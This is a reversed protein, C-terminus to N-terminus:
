NLLTLPRLRKVKPCQLFLYALPALPKLQRLRRNLHYMQQLSDLRYIAFICMKNGMILDTVCTLSAGRSM